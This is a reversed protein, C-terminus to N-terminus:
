KTAEITGAKDMPLEEPQTSHGDSMCWETKFMEETETM